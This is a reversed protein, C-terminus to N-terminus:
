SGAGRQTSFKFGFVSGPSTNRYIMRGQQAEIVQKAMYLGLGTGDPRINQANDARFFKTFLQKQVQKPVGIGRDAVTLEVGSKAEEVTVMVTSDPAYHIANELLNIVVQRIKAEDLKLTSTKSPAVLKLKVKRFSAYHRLRQVEERAIGGIDAGSRDFVLRGTNIRSINLMDVIIHVMREAGIYSLEIFERQKKTLKGADGDLLMSLYGKITTLPTRLQHSAMSVFEDKAEDLRRLRANSARLRKTAENVKEQLTLNFRQIREYSLANQIAVSLERSLLTLLEIDQATYINGSRKPGLLLYGVTGGKTKLQLSASIDYRQLLDKNKGGEMDDTIHLNRYLRSLEGLTPLENNGYMSEVKYIASGELIIFHAHTTKLTNSIVALSESMIVETEINLSCIDGLKALVEQLSYQDRYFIRSTVRDFFRRLYQFSLVLFLMLVLQVSEIPLSGARQHDFFVQTVGFLGFGYIIALSSLLLVYALSRAVVLRIDLFRHRVIAYGLLASLVVAGLPMYRTYLTDGTLNTLVLNTTLVILAFSVLGLFITNLQVRRIGSLKAATARIRVFSFGAVAIMWAVFLPYLTGRIPIVGRGEQPTDIGQLVLPTYLLMLMLVTGITLFHLYVPKSYPRTLNFVFVYMSMATILSSAFVSRGFLVSAGISSQLLGVGGLWMAIAIIFLALSRNVAEKPNKLLVVVAICTLASLSLYELFM